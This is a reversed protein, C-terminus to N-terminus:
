YHPPRRSPRSPNGFEEILDRVKKEEKELQLKLATIEKSQNIVVENLEEYMCELYSIKVELKELEEQM